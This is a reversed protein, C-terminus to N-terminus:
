ALSAANLAERLQAQTGEGPAVLPLRMSGDCHKMVGCAWKVPIPNTEVFMATILPVLPAHAARAEDYKGALSLEQVRASLKPALNSIVSIVGHGGMANFGVMTQDEGSFQVLREGVLHKLTAVRALDGTADKVGAINRIEALRALTADSINIVSRGPINYVFIPLATAEAIAKYHQYIGEQTPKNYYPAVVLAADAGAKEAAQTFEIAEATSNSGTGAMVKVRGKAIKVARAVIDKHETHSLTPSEGTTGCPVIGHIGQAVQWEVFTEFQEHNVAGNSFPTILATYAGRFSKTFDTM